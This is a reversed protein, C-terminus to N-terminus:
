RPESACSATGKLQLRMAPSERPNGLLGRADPLMQPTIDVELPAAEWGPLLGRAVWSQTIRFPEIVQNGCTGQALGKWLLESEPRYRLPDRLRIVVGGATARDNHGRKPATRPRQKSCSARDVTPTTLRPRPRRGHVQAGLRPGRNNNQASLTTRPQQKSRLDRDVTMTKVMAWPRGYNFKKFTQFQPLIPSQQHSLVSTEQQSLIM